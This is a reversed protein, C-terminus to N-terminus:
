HYIWDYETFICPVLFLIISVQFVCKPGAFLAGSFPHLLKPSIEQCDAGPVGDAADVHGHHGWRRGPIDLYCCCIIYLLLVALIACYSSHFYFNSFAIVGSVFWDNDVERVRVKGGEPASGAWAATLENWLDQTVANAYKFNKLFNNIGIQFSNGMFNELMRLISAGQPPLFSSESAASISCACMMWNPSFYSICSKSDESNVWLVLVWQCIYVCVKNYTILDFMDTINETNNVSLVIPHSNLKADRRM